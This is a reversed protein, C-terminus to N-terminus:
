VISPEVRQEESAIAPREGEASVVLAAAAALALHDRRGLAQLKGGQRGAEVVAHQQLAVPLGDDAAAVAHALAVHGRQRWSGPAYGDRGALRVRQQEAAVAPRPGHPAVEPALAIDGAEEGGGPVDRDGSAAVM